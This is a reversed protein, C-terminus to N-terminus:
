LEQIIRNDLTLNAHGTNLGENSTNFTMNDAVAIDSDASGLTLIHDNLQLTKIGVGTDSTYTTDDTLNWVMNELNILGGTKTLTGQTQWQNDKLDLTKGATVRIQSNNWRSISSKIKVDDKAELLNSEKFDFSGSIQSNTSNLVM